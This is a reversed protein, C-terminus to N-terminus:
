MFVSPCLRGRQRTFISTSCKSRTEYNYEQAFGATKRASACILKLKLKVSQCRFYSETVSSLYLRFHRLFTSLCCMLNGHVKRYRCTLMCSISFVYSKCEYWEEFKCISGPYMYMSALRNRVYAASNPWVLEIKQNM